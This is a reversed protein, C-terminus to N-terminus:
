TLNKRDSLVFGCPYDSRNRPNQAQLDTLSPRFILHVFPSTIEAEDRVEIHGYKNSKQFAIEYALTGPNTM